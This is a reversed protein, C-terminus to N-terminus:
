LCSDIDQTEGELILGPRRYREFPKIKDNFTASIPPYLM